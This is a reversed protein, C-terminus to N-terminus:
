GTIWSTRVCGVVSTWQLGWGASPRVAADIRLPSRPKFPGVVSVRIGDIRQDVLGYFAAEGHARATTLSRRPTQTHLPHSSIEHLFRPCQWLACASLSLSRCYCVCVCVINRRQFSIKICEFCPSPLFFFPLGSSMMQKRLEPLSQM